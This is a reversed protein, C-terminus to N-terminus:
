LSIKEFPTEDVFIKQWLELMLLMWLQNSYRGKRLGFVQKHFLRSVAERKFLKRRDIVAEELQQQAISKLEVDFWKKMPIAFIRKKETKLINRAM